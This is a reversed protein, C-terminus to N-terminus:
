VVQLMTAGPLVSRDQCAQYLEASSIYYLAKSKHFLVVGALGTEMLTPRQGAAM